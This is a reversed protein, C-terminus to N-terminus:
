CIGFVGHVFGYALSNRKMTNKNNFDNNEEDTM